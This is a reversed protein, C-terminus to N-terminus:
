TTGKRAAILHDIGADSLTGHGHADWEIFHRPDTGGFFLAADLTHNEPNEHWGYEVTMSKKMVGRAAALEAKLEEFKDLRVYGVDTENIKDQCWTVGESSCEEDDEFRDGEPDVQLWIREHTM